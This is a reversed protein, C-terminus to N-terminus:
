RTPTQETLLACLADLAGAFAHEPPTGYGVVIADGETGGFHSISQLALGYEGARAVLADAPTGPPLRLVAHLGAAIGSVRVAPAHAALAAM